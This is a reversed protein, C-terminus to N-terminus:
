DAGKNFDLEKQDIGSVVLYPLTVAASSVNYSSCGGKASCVGITWTNYIVSSVNGDLLKVEVFDENNKTSAENLTAHGIYESCGAWVSPVVFGVLLVVLLSLLM